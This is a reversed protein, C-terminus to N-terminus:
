NKNYKKSKKSRFTINSDDSKDTAVVINNSHKFFFFIIVFSKFAATIIAM